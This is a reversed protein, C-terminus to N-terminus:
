NCNVFFDKKSKFAAALADLQKQVRKDPIKHALCALPHVKITSAIIFELRALGVGSLSPLQAVAFAQEPDGINVM